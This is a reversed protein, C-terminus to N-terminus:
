RKKSCAEVGNLADAIARANHRIMGAYSEADTGRSGLVDGYIPTEVIRVEHGMERAVLAIKRLGDLNQNTEPILVTIQYALLHNVISRIDLVGIQDDPAIGQPSDCRVKWTETELEDPVSMYRRAFYNFADHTTVLYRRSPEVEAMIALVEEHLDLLERSLELGREMFLQAHDPDAMALAEVVVGIARVWLSVDMWIHPDAQGDIEILANPAIAVIRDGLSIVRKSSVLYHHLTAGHELGLGSAFILDAFELKEGDGKVLEYSHPDLEGIILPICDVEDGAVRSVLDHVIATTSVVKKKGNAQMWGDLEMSSSNSTSCGFLLAACCWIFIYRIM